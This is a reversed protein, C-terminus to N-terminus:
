KVIIDYPHGITILPYTLEGTKKSYQGSNVYITKLRPNGTAQIRMKKTMPSIDLAKLRNSRLDIETKVGVGKGQYSGFLVETLRNHRLNAIELLSTHSLDITKLRNYSANIEVLKKQKSIKLDTLQNHSVDIVRCDKIASLDLKKLGCRTLSLESLAPLKSLTIKKLPSNSIKLLSLKKLGSITVSTLRPSQLTLETLRPTDSLDVTKIDCEMSLRELRPLSSIDVKKMAGKVSLVKLARNQSIDLSKLKSDPVSLEELKRNASIDLAKLKSRDITLKKLRPFPTGDFSFATTDPNGKYSVAKRITVERVQQCQKGQLTKLSTCDFILVTKLRPLVGLIVCQLDRANDCRISQLATNGTFDLETMSPCTFHCNKLSTCGSLDLHQIGECDLSLDWLNKCGSLLIRSSISPDSNEPAGQITLKSLKKCGSLDLTDIKRIRLDLASLHLLGSLGLTSSHDCNLHVKKLRKNQSLDVTQIQEPWPFSLIELNHFYEIGELSQIAHKKADSSDISLELISGIDELYGMSNVDLYSRLWERFEPDPFHAEDLPIPDETVSSKASVNVSVLISISLLALLLHYKLYRINSM